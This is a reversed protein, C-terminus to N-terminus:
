NRGSFKGVLALHRYGKKYFFQAKEKVEEEDLPAIEFGRYNMAGSLIATETPYDLIGPNIGPGPILMLGINEYRQQAVINTLMTTSIVLREWRSVPEIKELREMAEGLCRLMNITTPTKFWHAVKAGDMAVADTYTGGVDIGFIM